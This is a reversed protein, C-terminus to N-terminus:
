FSYAETLLLNINAAITLPTRARRPQCVAHILQSRVGIIGIIRKPNRVKAARLPSDKAASKAQLLEGTWAANLYARPSCLL